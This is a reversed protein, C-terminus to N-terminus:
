EVSEELAKKVSKFQEILSVLAEAANQSVGSQLAHLGIMMNSECHRKLFEVQERTLLVPVKGQLNDGTSM